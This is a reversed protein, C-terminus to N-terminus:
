KEGGGAGSEEWEVHKTKGWVEQQSVCDSSFHLSEVALMNSKENNETTVQINNTRKKVRNRNYTSTEEGGGERERRGRM